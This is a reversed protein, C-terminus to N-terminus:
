SPRRVTIRAAAVWTPKACDFVDSYDVLALDDIATSKLSVISALVPGSNKFDSRDRACLRAFENWDMRGLADLQESINQRPDAIPDTSQYGVGHHIPDTTAVVACSKALLRLEDLDVDPTSTGVPFRTHVKKPAMGEVDCAIAYLASFNDLSFEGEVTEHIGRPLDPSGHAVGIALIEKGTRAAARAVSAVIAGSHILRTHPFIMAEPFEVIPASRVIAPLDLKERERAYFAKWEAPTM